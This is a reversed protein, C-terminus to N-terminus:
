PKSAPIPPMPDDVYVQVTEHTLLAPGLFKTLQGYKLTAPAFVMIVPPRDMKKTKANNLAEAEFAKRLEGASAVSSEHFELEAAGSDVRLLQGSVVGNTEALSLEWPHYIRTNRDLFDRDPTFARYYLQGAPPPNIPIGRECDMIVLIKALAQASGLEVDDGFSVTLYYDIKKRDLGAIAQVVSSITPHDNLVTASDKLQLALNKLRKLGNSADASESQSAHVQLVLEKSPRAEAPKVPEILLTLRSGENLPYEPNVVINQYVEGQAAAYPVEFVSDPLNFLSVISMPQYEDAAYVEKRPDNPAPVRRSSTFRFGQEPLTKGTRQDIFMKELRLPPENSQTLSLVFCEGKSWFKFAAPDVPEGPKKGIFKLAQHIASPRAFSILLTEYAHESAEAVVTFECPAKAALRTSEVLVEVRQKQRDAVLGPLVLMNTDGNFKKRNTEYTSVAFQKNKEHGVPRDKYPDSPQALLPSALLLLGFIVRLVTQM